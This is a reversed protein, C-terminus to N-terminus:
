KEKRIRDVLPLVNQSVDQYKDELIRTMENLSGYLMPRDRKLEADPMFLYDKAIRVLGKDYESDMLDIVVDLIDEIRGYRIKRNRYEEVKPRGVEGTGGVRNDEVRENDRENDREANYKDTEISIAEVLKIVEKREKVKSMNIKSVIRAGDYVEQMRRIEEITKYAM